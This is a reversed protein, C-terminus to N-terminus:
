EVQTYLTVFIDAKVPYLEGHTGRVLWDGKEGRMRGEPTLVFFFDQPHLTVKAYDERIFDTRDTSDTRSTLM